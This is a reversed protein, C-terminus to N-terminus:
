DIVRIISSFDRPGLGKKMAKKFLQLNKEALPLKKKTKKAEYNALKLDKTMNSMSFLLPFENKVYDSLKLNMMPSLAPVTSLVDAALKRNLNLVDALLMGEALATITAAILQNNIMKIAQGLGSGGMYHINKGMALLVPKVKEFVEKKGGVFITLEGTKAKPTSGTVPADIFDIQNEELREAIERAATPGITGMDIVVLDKNKGYIVGNKGFLIQKVDQAATIMTIIVDTRQALEKPSSAIKVGLKKFEDTKGSTRNYVTLDFGSKHINKAMLNGMLGLGIFGIKM